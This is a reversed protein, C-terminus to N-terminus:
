IRNKMLEKAIYGMICDAVNVGTCTHINKFHANSNVECVVDAGDKVGKSFLLDVGAFDLKLAKITRVALRCEEESPHYPKMSGGNSINARFDGNESYRYMSAVVEDGVVQLRVDKGTSKELYKQYLFAKGGLKKTYEIVQNRNKAIYVQMGFSGYCEKMVLPLGLLAIIDDVFDLKTYGINEYTMPAAITPILAIKNQKAQRENWASLRLYTEFKNDCAAISAISNYMPIGKRDCVAQLMKGYAVDKDWFLVFDNESVIQEIRNRGLILDPNGATEVADNAQTVTIGEQIPCILDANELLSLVIDYQKAAERLWEYHEVFKDTRLFANTVLVGHLM